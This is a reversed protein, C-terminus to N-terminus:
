QSNPSRYLRMLSFAGKKRHRQVWIAEISSNETSSSDMRLAAAVHKRILIAFGGGRKAGDGDCRFHPFCPINLQWDQGERLWTETIVVVYNYRASMWAVPEVVKGIISMANFYVCTTEEPEGHENVQDQKGKRQSIFKTKGDTGTLVEM